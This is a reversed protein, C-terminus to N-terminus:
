VRREKTLGRLATADLYEEDVSDYVADLIMPVDPAIDLIGAIEEKGDYPALRGNVDWLHGAVDFGPASVLWLGVMERSLKLPQDSKAKQGLLFATSAALRLNSVGVLDLLQLWRSIDVPKSVHYYPGEPMKGRYPRLYLDIGREAARESLLRLTKELSTWTKGQPFFLEPTQHLSLILDRAGLLEMKAMVGEIATMSAAYQAKDNKILRLNPYLNIGSTLDVVVRIGQREIWGAEKQLVSAERESLYKWDVMVGDFHEFFTPRALV